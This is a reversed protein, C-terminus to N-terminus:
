FDPTVECYTGRYRFWPGAPTIHDTTCKGEVKILIPLNVYDNGNWADFPALKQIRQSDPSIIVEAFSPKAPPATYVYDTERYGTTPLSASPPPHFKFHGISDVAPDFDLKGSFSKVVVTEPSALFISTGPNGDLRGTFNRNYSTVISNETGKM